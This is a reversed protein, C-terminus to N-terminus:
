KNIFSNKFIVNSVYATGNPNFHGHIRFPFLSYVDKHNDLEFKFILENIKGSKSKTMGEIELTSKNACIQSLIIFDKMKATYSPYNLYRYDAMWYEKEKYEDYRKLTLGVRPCAIMQRIAMTAPILKLCSEPNFVDLSQM